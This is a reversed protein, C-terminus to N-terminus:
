FLNDIIPSASCRCQFYIGPAARDGNKAVVPPDNFSFTKGDLAKHEDRVREDKSTVWVYETVGVAQMRDAAVESNLKLTQDRAILAARSDSLDLKSQLNKALEEVRLGTTQAKALMESARDLDTGALSQILQVNERQFTEVVHDPVVSKLPIGIVRSVERRAHEVTRGAVNALLPALREHTFLALGRVRLGAIKRLLTPAYLPADQRQGAVEHLAPRLEEMIVAHWERRLKNLGSLYLLGPANPPKPANRRAAARSRKPVRYRLLIDSTIVRVEERHAHLPSTARVTAM